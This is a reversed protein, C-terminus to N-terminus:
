CSGRIPPAQNAIAHTQNSLVPPPLTPRSRIATCGPGECPAPVLVIWMNINGRTSSSCFFPGRPCEHKRYTPNSSTLMHYCCICIRIYTIHVSPLCAHSFVHENDSSIFNARGEYPHPKTQLPMHKTRCFRPFFRQDPSIATCGPGECPAPVLVMWMNINGRTSSSCFNSRTPM